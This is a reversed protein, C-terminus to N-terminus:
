EESTIRDGGNNNMYRRYQKYRRSSAMKIRMEADNEAKWVKFKDKEWLELEPMDESSDRASGLTRGSSMFSSREAM